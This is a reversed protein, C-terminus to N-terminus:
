KKVNNNVINNIYMNRNISNQLNHLLHLYFIYIFLNIFNSFCVANYHYPDIYVGDVDVPPYLNGAGDIKSYASVYGNRNINRQAFYSTLSSSAFGLLLVCAFVAMVVFCLAKNIQYDEWRRPSRFKTAM